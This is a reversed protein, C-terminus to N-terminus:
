RGMLNGPGGYQNLMRTRLSYTIGRDGGVLIIQPIDSLTLDASGVAMSQYEGPAASWKGREVTWFDAFRDGFDETYTAGPPDV